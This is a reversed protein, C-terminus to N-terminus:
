LPSPDSVQLEQLIRAGEYLNRQKMGIRVPVVQELPARRALKWSASLADRKEHPMRASPVAVATAALAAVLSLSLCLM